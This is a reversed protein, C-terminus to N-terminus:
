ANGQEHPRGYRKEFLRGLNLIIFFVFAMAYWRIEIGSVLRSVLLLVASVVASGALVHVNGSLLGTAAPILVAMAVLTLVGPAAGFVNPDLAMLPGAILLVVIFFWRWRFMTAEKAARRSYLPSASAVAQRWFWRRAAVPDSDPLVRTEAEEILDGVLEDRRGTPLLLWLVLRAVPGPFHEGLGPESPHVDNM